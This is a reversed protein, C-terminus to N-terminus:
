LVVQIGAFGQLLSRLLYDVTPYTTGSPASDMYTVSLVGDISEQKVKGGRSESARLAGPNNLEILGAEAQADQVLGYADSTEDMDDPDTIWPLTRMYAYARNLAFEKDALDAAAWETNNLEEHYTDALVVTTWGNVTGM